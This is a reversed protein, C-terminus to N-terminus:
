LLAGEWFIEKMGAIMHPWLFFIADIARWHRWVQRTVQDQIKQAGSSLSIFTQQKTQGAWQMIKNYCCKHVSVSYWWMGCNRSPGGGMLCCSVVPLTHDVWGEAGRDGSEPLVWVEKLLTYVCTCELLSTLGQRARHEHQARERTNEEGAKGPILCDLCIHLRSNSYPSWREQNYSSGRKLELPWSNEQSGM